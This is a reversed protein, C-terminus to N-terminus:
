RWVSVSVSMPSWWVQRGGCLCLCLCPLGCYRDVECMCLCPLGCYRDVEVCVCVCLCLCPLGGYRDVEVCVCVHSVVM